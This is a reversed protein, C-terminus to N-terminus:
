SPAVDRRNFGVISLGILVVALALLTVVPAFSTQEAPMASLHDFPSLASVFSPLGIVPGFMVVGVNLAMFAWIGQGIRPFWAFVASSCGILVAVACYYGLAASLAREVEAAGGGTAAYAGGLGLGAVLSILLAGGFAFILHSLLWDRRSAPHSLLHELRGQNEESRMRLVASIGFGTALLAFYLLFTAVFIDNLSGVALDQVYDLIEENDGILEDFSDIISGMALAYLGVGASWAIISGRHLRWSLGIFGGLMPGADVPGAKVALLGAGLDRRSELAFGVTMVVGAFLLSLVLIWWRDGTYPQTASPWGLPSLYSLLSPGTDGIARLGFSLGLIAFALGKAARGTQTIQAGVLAIAGFIIATSSMSAGLLVSGTAPLGNALLVLSAGLGILVSSTVMVAAAAGSMAHRGIATSRLLELRGDEEESRTHRPVAIIAMVAVMIMLQALEYAIRGGLTELGHAPGGIAALAKHGEVTAAFEVLSEPTPYATKIQSATSAVIGVMALLWAVLRIRDRRIVFKALTGIGRMQAWHTTQQNM